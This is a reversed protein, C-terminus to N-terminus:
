YIPPATYAGGYRPFENRPSAPKIFPTCPEQKLSGSSWDKCSEVLGQTRTEQRGSERAENLMDTVETVYEVLARQGRMVELAIAAIEEAALIFAFDQADDVDIPVAVRHSYAFKGDAQVIIEVTRDEKVEPVVDYHISRNM